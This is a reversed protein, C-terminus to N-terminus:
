CLYAWTIKRVQSNLLFISLMMISSFVSISVVSLLFFLDSPHLATISQYIILVFFPTGGFIFCGLTIAMNKTLAMERKRNIRPATDVVNNVIVPHVRQTSRVITYLIKSYAIGIIVFPIMFTTIISYISTISKQSTLLCIRSEYEYRYAGEFFLPVIPFLISLIWSLVIMIWHSSWSLLHRHNYFVVFFLRSLAQISYSYCVAVGLVLYIYARFVCAPQNRAWDERLGYIAATIHFVSHIFVVGSTNCLLLNTVTHCQRNVTITIITTSSFLLAVAAAVISVSFFAVYFRDDLMNTLGNRKIVSSNTYIFKLM